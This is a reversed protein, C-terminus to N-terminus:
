KKNRILLEIQSTDIQWLYINKEDNSTSIANAIWAESAHFNSTFFKAPRPNIHHFRCKKHSVYVDCM